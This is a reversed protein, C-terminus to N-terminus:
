PGKSYRGVDQPGEVLVSMRRLACRVSTRLPGERKGTPRRCRHRGQEGGGPGGCRHPRRRSRRLNHTCPEGSILPHATGKKTGLDGKSGAPERDAYRDQRHLDRDGGGLVGSGATRSWQTRSRFNIAAWPSCMTIIIPLEEPITAFALSLATLVMTQPDQGNILWGLFPVLASFAIALAVMWKTLDRMAMQLVTRPPRERRALATIRGLETEKGTAVVVARGLGRVVLTGCYLMNSREAWPVEGLPEASKEVPVPEGTLSSEDVALGRSERGPM